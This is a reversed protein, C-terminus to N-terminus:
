FLSKDIVICGCEIDRVGKDNLKVTCLTPIYVLLCTCCKFFVQFSCILGDVSLDFILHSASFNKKSKQVAKAVM